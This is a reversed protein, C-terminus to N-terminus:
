ESEALRDLLAVARALIKQERATLEQSIAQALWGDRRARERELAERGLSSVEILTQRRDAPDPRRVVLQEAALEAITQAMSQPRVREATALASTTRPGERELRGLVAFLSTSIPHEARLRRVLRAMVMRLESATVAVDARVVVPRHYNAGGEHVTLM